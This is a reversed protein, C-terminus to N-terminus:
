STDVCGLLLFLRMENESKTLLDGGELLVQGGMIRGAPRPQLRLISLATM